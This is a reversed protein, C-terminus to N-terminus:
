EVTCLRSPPLLSLLLAVGTEPDIMFCQTTRHAHWNALEVLPEARYLSLRHAALLDVRPDRGLHYLIRGQTAVINLKFGMAQHM